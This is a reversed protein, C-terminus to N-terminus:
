LAQFPILSERGDTVLQQSFSRGHESSVNLSTRQRYSHTHSHHNCAQVIDRTVKIM